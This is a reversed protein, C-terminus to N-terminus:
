GITIDAFLIDKLEFWRDFEADKADGFMAKRDLYLYEAKLEEFKLRSLKAPIKFYENDFQEDDFEGDDFKSRPYYEKYLECYLKYPEMNSYKEYYKNWRKEIFKSEKDSFLAKIYNKYDYQDFSKELDEMIWKDFKEEFKKKDGKKLYAFAIFLGNSYDHGNAEFYELHEIAKEYNNIFLYAKGLDNDWISKFQDKLDIIRQYTKITNDIDDMELYLEAIDSLPKMCEPYELAVKELRKIREQANKVKDWVSYTADRCEEERGM